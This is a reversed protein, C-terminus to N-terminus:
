SHANLIQMPMGYKPRLTILQQMQVRASPLLRFKWKQALTALILIGETWAMAEGICQRFGAGFPFYSFKPFTARGAPAFREPLYRAADVFNRPDRHAIFQSILVTTGAPLHYDGLTFDRLAQRGMAWVPPYLRMAEALVMETYKLQPVDDATPLRSHLVTDIEEHFRQEAEPNQSLLYWTWTLASAVTEYGALFITIVQDRLYQDSAADKEGSLGESELMLDLLDPDGAPRKRHEDIMHCVIADLRAKAKTFKAVPPVGFNILTEVAPLAILYHYIGMIANIADGLEKVEPGLETSFLTRAVIRLTLGMMEISIDRHDRDRWQERLRASEEVIAESYATIRQRHFRPQAVRRQSKHMNGEATIMGDGLLMKTRQVIREKVFNDNQVVLVERIYDPHNLFIIHGRGLKYHAIGGYKESLHQFLSIADGPRFKTGTYWLLNRKLGPPFNYESSSSPM